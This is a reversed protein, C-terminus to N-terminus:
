GTNMEHILTIPQFPHCDTTAIPPFGNPPLQHLYTNVPQFGYLYICDLSDIPFLPNLNQECSAMANPLSRSGKKLISIPEKGKRTAYITVSAFCGSHDSRLQKSCM